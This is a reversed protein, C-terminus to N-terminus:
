EERGHQHPSNSDYVEWNPQPCAQRAAYYAAAQAKSAVAAEVADLNVKLLKTHGDLKELISRELRDLRDEFNEEMATMREELAETIANAESRPVYETSMTSLRAEIYDLRKFVFVNGALYLPAIVALIEWM